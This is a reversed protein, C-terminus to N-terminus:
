LRSEPTSWLPTNIVYGNDLLFNAQMIVIGLQDLSRVLLRGRQHERNWNIIVIDTKYERIAAPVRDMINKYSRSSLSDPIVLDDDRKATIAANIVQEDPPWDMSPDFRFIIRHQGDVEIIHILDPCSEAWAAIKSYISPTSIGWVVSLREYGWAPENKDMLLELRSRWLQQYRSLEKSVITEVTNNM